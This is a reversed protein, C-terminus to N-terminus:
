LERSSYMRTLYEWSGIFIFASVIKLIAQFTKCVCVVFGIFLGFTGGFALEAGHERIKVTSTGEGITVLAWTTALALAVIGVLVAAAYLLRARKTM